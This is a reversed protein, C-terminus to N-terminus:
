SRRTEIRHLLRRTREVYIAIGLKEFADLASLAESKADEFRGQRNWLLAQQYIARALHYPAKVALSKAREVHTQADEFKGQDSFLEALSYNVQLIQDVMKLSSAVRLAVEFHYIAKKMEGKSRYVGGLLHHGQCVHLEKGKEPLLDIARSGAEEAADRQGDDCLLPTLILLCEVQRDVRGLREFIESAVKVQRIGEERLGMKRNTDGLSTLTQAVHNDDEQGGWLELCHNLLRKSEVLNGISDLLRSLNLLCYPKSPHNDPLAEIRPGLTILRPKHHYLQAIFKACANWVSKSNADVTTFVDLLHEVNMDETMIWQGKEFGPDGPPLDGSLRTFYNEKVTKLLPSSAPDKPRLLDRLPALMTIFGDNRYTLSLACFTDLINLIGPITSFLWNANKENVGQPFFAVVKLLERAHSGLKRFTPSALSLEIMTGLSGSHQDRLIGTRRGEWERTLRSTDWQNYQAVTALLTISLPHYDLQELIDNIENTRKGYKYIRYFADLAAETSLIPIRITKCHPPITSIRSTICICLNSLQTLEDVVAYIKRASPSQPDLISEANDLVILIEKSSLFPRLSRLDEPNEIGAGVVKSLQRLFHARSAPFEDCRIFRRDRGFRRKIRDDHLATLIISTKGVGGAGILAIPTLLKASRVIRDVLADRGCFIRPPPPPLVGSVSSAFTLCRIERYDLSCVPKSGSCRNTHAPFQLFTQADSAKLNRSGTDKRIKSVDQRMDTVIIHTNLIFETKPPPFDTVVLRLCVSCVNFVQLLRNLDYKWAAIM